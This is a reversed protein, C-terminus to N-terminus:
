PVNALERGARVEEYRALHEPRLNLELLEDAPVAGRPPVLRPRKAITKRARCLQCPMYVMGGCGPCREPPGAPEDGQEDWSQHYLEEYDPRRGSAIAAVSGRSVGMLQGIKRQSLTEEALLRRIEAVVKPAIM